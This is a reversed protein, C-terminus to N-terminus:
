FSENLSMKRTNEQGRVFKIGQKFEDTFGLVLFNITGILNIVFTSFNLYGEPVEWELAESVRYFFLFIYCTFMIIPYIMLRMTNKDINRNNKRVTRHVSFMVFGGWASSLFVFIYSCCFQLIFFNFFKDGHKMWCWFGNHKYYGLIEFVIAPPTTILLTIFIAKHINICEHAPKNKCINRYVFLSFWGIWILESTSFIQELLGQIVCSTYNAEFPKTTILRNLSVILDISQLVAILQITLRLRLGEYYFFCLLFFSSSLASLICSVMFTYYLTSDSM